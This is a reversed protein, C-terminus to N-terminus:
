LGGVYGPMTHPAGTFLCIPLACFPGASPVPSVVAPFKIAASVVTVAPATLTISGGATINIAGAGTTLNMTGAAVTLNYNGLLVSETAGGSVITKVIGTGITETQKKIVIHDETGLITETVNNTTMTYSGGVNVNYMGETSLLKKRVSEDVDKATTTVNELQEVKNRGTIYLDGLATAKMTMSPNRIWITGDGGFLFVISNNFIQGSQANVPNSFTIASGSLQLISIDGQSSVSFPQGAAKEAANILEIFSLVSDGAPPQSLGLIFGTQFHEDCVVWVIDDPQYATNNQKFFNPFLPLLESQAEPIEQMDPLVRLRFLNYSVDGVLLRPEVIKALKLQYNM